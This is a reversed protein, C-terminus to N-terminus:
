DRREPCWFLLVPLTLFTCPLNSGMNEFLCGKVLQLILRIFLSSYFRFCVETHISSHCADLDLRM